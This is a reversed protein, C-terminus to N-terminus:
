ALKSIIKHKNIKNTTHAKSEIEIFSWKSRSIVGLDKTHTDEYSGATNYWATVQVHMVVWYM